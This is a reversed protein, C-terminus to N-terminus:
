ANEYAEKLTKYSTNRQYEKSSLNVTKKFVPVFEDKLFSVFYGEETEKVLWHPRIFFSTEKDRGSPLEFYYVRTGVVLYSYFMLDKDVLVM